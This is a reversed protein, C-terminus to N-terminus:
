QNKTLWLVVSPVLNAPNPGSGTTKDLYVRGTLYFGTQQETATGLYPIAACYPENGCNRAIKIAYLNNAALENSAKLYRNASGQTYAGVFTFTGDKSKTGPTQKSEESIYAALTKSGVLSHNVGLLMLVDNSTKGLQFNCNEARKPRSSLNCSFSTYLADPSDFNCSSPQTRCLNSDYHRLTETLRAKLSYGQRSYISLVSQELAKLRQDLGTRYEIDDVRLTNEWKPLNNFSVDGSVGPGKIFFVQTSPATQKAFTELQQKEADSQTTFRLLLSLQDPYDTTGVNAVSAPILYPNIIQESIGATKLSAKIANLTKTSATVIVIYRGNIGTKLNANNLGLNISSRIEAYNTPSRDSYTFSQYATFSYYTIKQIPSLSGSIVLADDGDLQFCPPEAGRGCITSKIGEVNTTISGYRTNSSGFCVSAKCPPPPAPAGTIGGTACSCTKGINLQGSYVSYGVPLSGIFATQATILNAHIVSYVFILVAVACGLFAVPKGLKTNM